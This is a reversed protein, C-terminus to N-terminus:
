IRVKKAQQLLSNAPKLLVREMDFIFTFLESVFYQEKYLVQPTVFGGMNGKKTASIISM